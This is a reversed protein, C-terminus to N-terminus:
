KCAYCLRCSHTGCLGTKSELAKKLKDEVVGRVDVAGCAELLLRVTATEERRMWDELIDYLIDSVLPYRNEYDKVSMGLRRALGRWDDTQSSVIAFCLSCATGDLAQESLALPEQLSFSPTNRPIRSVLEVRCHPHVRECKEILAALTCRFGDRAYWELIMKHIIDRISYSSSLLREYHGTRERTMSLSRALSLWSSEFVVAIHDLVDIYEKRTVLGNLTSAECALRGGQSVVKERPITYGFLQFAIDDLNANCLSEVLVCPVAFPGYCQKWKRLAEPASDYTGDGFTPPPLQAPSVCSEQLKEYGVFDKYKDRMLNAAKCLDEASLRCEMQELLCESLPSAAKIDEITGKDPSLMEFLGDNGYGCYERSYKIKQYGARQFGQRCLSISFASSVPENSSHLMIYSERLCGVLSKCLEELDILIRLLVQWIRRQSESSRPTKVKMVISKSETEKTLLMAVPGCVALAGGSWHRLYTQHRHFRASLRDFLATPLHSMFCVRAEVVVFRSPDNLEDFYLDVETPTSTLNRDLLWPILLQRCHDDEVIEFDENGLVTIEESDHLEFGPPRETLWYCLDFYEMLRVVARVLPRSLSVNREYRISEILAILLSLTAVGDRLLDSKLKQFKYPSMHLHSLTSDYNVSGINHRFIAKFVTIVLALRHFVIQCLIPDKEYFLVSGIEHLYSAVFKATRNQLGLKNAISRVHTGTYYPLGTVDDNRTLHQYLSHWPTPLIYQVSPFLEVNNCYSILLAQLQSMGPHTTMDVAASVCVVLMHRKAKDFEGIRPQGRIRSEIRRNVTCVCRRRIDETLIQSKEFGIKDAQAVVIIFVAGPNRDLVNELYFGVLLEFAECKDEAKQYTDVDVVIINLSQETIFLQNTIAYTDQGGGDFFRVIMSAHDDKTCKGVQWDTIDMSITRADPDALSPQQTILSQVISTKGAKYSGLILVKLIGCRVSGYRSVAKMYSCVSTFSNFGTVLPSPPFVLPNWACNLEMSQSPNLEGFALPLYRIQNSSIDLFTCSKLYDAPIDIGSMLNHCLNVSDLSNIKWLQYPITRIENFSAALSRLRTLRGINPPLCHLRNHSVEFRQLSTILCIDDPITVLGLHSVDLEALYHFEPMKASITNPIERCNGVELFKKKFKLQALFSLSTFDFLSLVDIPLPLILRRLGTPKALGAHLDDAGQLPNGDVKLSTLSDVTWLSVPLRPLDNYSVDLEELMRLMGIEEPLEAMINDSLDLQELFQLKYIEHPISKIRNGAMELRKLRTLFLLVDPFSSFRCRSLSIDILHLFDSFTCPLSCLKHGSLNLVMLSKMCNVYPPLERLLAPPRSRHIYIMILQQLLTLSSCFDEHFNDVDGNLMLKELSSPLYLKRLNWARFGLQDSIDLSKLSLLERFSNPLESLLNGILILEDLCCLVTPFWHPIEELRCRELSLSTLGTLFHSHGEALEIPGSGESITQRVVNPLLALYSPRIVTRGGKIYLHLQKHSKLKHLTSTNLSAEIASASLRIEDIESAFVLIDDPISHVAANVLNLRCLGSDENREVPFWHLKDPATAEDRDDWWHSPQGDPLRELWLGHEEEVDTM